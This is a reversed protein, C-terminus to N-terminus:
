DEDRAPGLWQRRQQRSWGAAALERELDARPLRLDLIFHGEDDAREASVAQLAHLRPVPLLAM